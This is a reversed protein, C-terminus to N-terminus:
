DVEKFEADPLDKIYKEELKKLPSKQEVNINKREVYRMDRYDGWNTLLFIGMSPNLKGTINLQEYYAMITQHAKRVINARADFEIDRELIDFFTQKNIGYVACLSEIGPRMDHQVCYAFYDDTAKYYDEATIPTDHQFLPLIDKLIAANKKDQTVLTRQQKTGKPKTNPM